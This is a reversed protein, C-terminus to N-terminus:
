VLKYNEAMTKPITVTVMEDDILHKGTEVLEKRVQLDRLVSATSSHSYDFSSSKFVFAANPFKRNSGYVFCADNDYTQFCYKTMTDHENLWMVLQLIENM